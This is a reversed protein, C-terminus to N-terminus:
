SVGPDSLRGYTCSMIVIDICCCKTGSYYLHFRNNCHSLDPTALSLYSGGRSETTWYTRSSAQSIVKSSNKFSPRSCSFTTISTFCSYLFLNFYHNLVHSTSYTSVPLPTVLSLWSHLSHLVLLSTEFTMRKRLLANIFLCSDKFSLCSTWSTILITTLFTHNRM